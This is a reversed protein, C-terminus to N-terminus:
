TRKRAPRGIRATANSDGEFGGLSGVGNFVVMGLMSVEDSCVSDISNEIDGVSVTNSTAVLEGLTSRVVPAGLLVVDSVGEIAGGIIVPSGSLTGVVAEISVVEIIGDLAGDLIM